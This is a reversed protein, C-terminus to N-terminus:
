RSNRRSRGGCGRRSRSGAAERCRGRRRRSSGSLLSSGHSLVVDDSFYSGAEPGLDYGLRGVDEDLLLVWFVAFFGDDRDVDVRGLLEERKQRHRAVGDLLLPGLGGLGQLGFPLGFALLALKLAQLEAASCRCLSCTTPEVGVLGGLANRLM